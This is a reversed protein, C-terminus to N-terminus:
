RTRGKEIDRSKENERLQERLAKAANYENLYRAREAKFRDNMELIQRHHRQMENENLGHNSAIGSKRFFDLAEKYQREALNSLLKDREREPTAKREPGAWQTVIDDRFANQRHQKFIEEQAERQQKHRHALQESKEKAERELQQRVELAAREAFHHWAIRSVPDFESPHLDPM